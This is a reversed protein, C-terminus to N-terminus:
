SRRKAESRAKQKSVAQSSVGVRRGFAPASHFVPVLRAPMRIEKSGGGKSGTDAGAHSSAPTRISRGARPQVDFRGFSRLTVSRGESLAREITRLFAEVFLGAEKPPIGRTRALEQVLDKKNM